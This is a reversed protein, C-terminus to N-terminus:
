SWHQANPICALLSGGPKLRLTAQRVISEPDYLHELVDGCIVHDFAGHPLNELMVADQDWDEILDLNLQLAIDLVQGARKLAAASVDVGIYHVPHTLRNRVALAFAGTGCGLELIRTAQPEVADLLTPNVNNYYSEM